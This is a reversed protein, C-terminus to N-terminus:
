SAVGRRRLDEATKHAHHVRCLPQHNEEDWMSGGQRLPIIHDVLEAAHPHDGVACLPHNRLYMITYQHWQHTYGREGSSGRRDADWRHRVTAHKPCVSTGSAVLAPCGTHSCPKMPKSPLIRREQKNRDAMACQCSPIRSHGGRTTRASWRTNASVVHPRWTKM